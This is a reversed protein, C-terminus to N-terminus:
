RMCPATKVGQPLLHVQAVLAALVVLLVAHHPDLIWTTLLVIPM